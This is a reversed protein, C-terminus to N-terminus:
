ILHLVRYNSNWRPRIPIIPTEFITKLRRWKAVRSPTDTGEIQSRVWDLGYNYTISYSRLTEILTLRQEAIERTELGFEMLWRLAREREWGGYLFRRGAENRAFNLREVFDVYRHFDKLQCSLHTLGAIPLVVDRDYAVREAPNFSLGVGYNAAGEVVVTHAGFLPMMTWEMWGRRDVLEAELLTAQVHHGPYAEHTCLEVARDVHFPLSTSFHVNTQGKGLYEAFAGFNGFDNMKLEIGEGEPLGLHTRTRRRAEDLTPRLVAEVRDQPILFSDRFTVMREPLPETGPIVNQLDAALARFHDEDYEPVKVSYLVEVEADFSQPMRGQLIGARVVLADTRDALLARRTEAEAGDPRAEMLRKSLTACENEVDPLPRQTGQIQARLAADGIYIYPNPDHNHLHLALHVYEEALADLSWEPM